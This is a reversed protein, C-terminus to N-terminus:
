KNILTNKIKLSIISNLMSTNEELENATNPTFLINANDVALKNVTSNAIKSIALLITENNMERSEVELRERVGYM